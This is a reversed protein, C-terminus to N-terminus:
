LLSFFRHQPKQVVERNGKVVVKRLAVHPHHFDLLFDGAAKAGVVSGLCETAYARINRGHPLLPLRKKGCKLVDALAIGKM